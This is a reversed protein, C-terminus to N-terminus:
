KPAEETSGLMSPEIEVKEEKKEAKAEQANVVSYRIISETVNLMTKLAAPTRGEGKFTIFFFQGDSAKKAKKFRFSLKRLGWKATNIETGGNDAIKKEIKQVDASMKEETQEPNFIIIAEYSKLPKLLIGEKYILVFLCYLV